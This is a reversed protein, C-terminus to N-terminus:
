LKKQESQIFAICQNLVGIHAKFFLGQQILQQIQSLTFWGVNQVEEEQMKVAHIDIDKKVYYLDVFDDETQITKFLRLQRAPIKIGLEEEIETCIGQLSTEGAKPHGGTTAWQGGKELSRQQLLFEGKTNQIFVMVTVYYRGKPVPEGKCIVEGTKRRNVDYLDRVEMNKCVEGKTKGIRLLALM